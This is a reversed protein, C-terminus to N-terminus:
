ASAAEAPGGDDKARVKAKRGKSAAAATTDAVGPQVRVGATGYLWLLAVLEQQGRIHDSARADPLFCHELPSRHKCLAALVREGASTQFCDRCDAQFDEDKLLQRLPAIM